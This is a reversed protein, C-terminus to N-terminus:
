VALWIASADPTLAQPAAIDAPLGGTGLDPAPIEFPGDEGPRVPGGDDGLGAAERIAARRAQPEPLHERHQEALRVAEYATEVHLEIWTEVDRELDHVTRLLPAHDADAAQVAPAHGTIVGARCEAPRRLDDYLAAPGSGTNLRRDIAAAATHERSRHLDGLVDCLATIRDRLGRSSWGTVIVEDRRGIREPRTARYGLRGLEVEVRRAHVPTPASVAYGRRRATVRMGGAMAEELRERVANLHGVDLENRATRGALDYPSDLAHVPEM